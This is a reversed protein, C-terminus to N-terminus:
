GTISYGFTETGAAAAGNATTLTFSVGVSRASLYLNGAGQLLNAAAVNTPMWHMVSAATVRVNSVTTNAANACTFTGVYPLATAAIAGLLVFGGAGGDANPHYFPVYLANSVLDGSGAQALGDGTYVKITALTGVKPVVTATVAGTSGADLWFPFCDGFIYGELNPSADNPTLTVVNSSIDASCPIIRGMGLMYNRWTELTQSAVRTLNGLRPDVIPIAKQLASLPTPISATPITM